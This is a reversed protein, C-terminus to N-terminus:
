IYLDFEMNILNRSKTFNKNSSNKDPQYLNLMCM